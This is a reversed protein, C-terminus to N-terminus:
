RESVDREVVEQRQVRNPPRRGLERLDIRLPPDPVQVDVLALEAVGVERGPARLEPGDRVLQVGVAEDREQGREGADIVEDDVVAELSAAEMLRESAAVQVHMGVEGDM